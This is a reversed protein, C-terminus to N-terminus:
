LVNGHTGEEWTHAGAARKIIHEVPIWHDGEGKMQYRWAGGSRLSYDLDYYRARVVTTRAVGDVLVRDGVKFLPVTIEM